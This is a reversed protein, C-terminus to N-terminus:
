GGWAVECELRCGSPEVTAWKVDVIVRDVEAWALACASMGDGSLTPPSAVIAWSDGVKSGRRAPKTDAKMMVATMMVRSSKRLNRRLSLRGSNRLSWSRGISSIISSVGKDM